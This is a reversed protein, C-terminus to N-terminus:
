KSPEPRHPAFAFLRHGNYSVVAGIAAGAIVAAQPYKAAFTLLLTAFVAYSVGQAALTVMAYRAAEARPRRGSRAFTLARNLRWTVVTAVALSILRILLPQPQHGITMIATFVTLDSALGIGGVGLFRLARPLRDIARRLVHPPAPLGLELDGLSM